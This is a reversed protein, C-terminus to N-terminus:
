CIREKKAKGEFSKSSGVGEGISIEFTSTKQLKFDNTETEVIDEKRVGCNREHVTQEDIEEDVKAEKQPYKLNLKRITKNARSTEPENSNETLEETNDLLMQLWREVKRKGRQKRCEEDEERQPSRLRLTSNPANIMMKNPEQFELRHFKNKVMSEDEVAVLSKSHEELQERRDEIEKQIKQENFYYGAESSKQEEESVSLEKNHHKRPRIRPGYLFSGYDGKAHLTGDIRSRKRAQEWQPRIQTEIEDRQKFKKLLEKESSDCIEKQAELRAMLVNTAAQNLRIQEKYIVSQHLADRIMKELVTKYSSQSEALRRCKEVKRKRKILLLELDQIALREVETKKKMEDLEKDLKKMESQMKQAEERQRLSDRAMSIALYPNTVMDPNNNETSISHLQRRVSKCVSENDDFLSKRKVNAPSSSRLRRNLDISKLPSSADFSKKCSLIIAAPALDAYKKTEMFHQPLAHSEMTQSSNLEEKEGHSFLLSFARNRFDSNSSAFISLFQNVSIGLQLDWWPVLFQLKNHKKRCAQWQLLRLNGPVTRGGRSCPFWHDIEWALPSAPDAHYYLVNGYPDVRFKAPDFGANGLHDLQKWLLSAYIKPETSPKGEHDIIPFLDDFDRARSIEHTPLVYPIFTFPPGNIYPNLHPDRCLKAYAKPYGIGEDIMMEDDAFVLKAAM